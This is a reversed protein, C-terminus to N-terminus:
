RLLTTIDDDEDDDDSDDEMAQGCLDLLRDVLSREEPVLELYKESHGHVKYRLKVILSPKPPESHLNKSILRKPSANRSGLKLSTPDADAAELLKDTPKRVRKSSRLTRDEDAALDQVPTTTRSQSAVQATPKEKNEVDPVLDALSDRRKSPTGQSKSVLSEFSTVSSPIAVTSTSTLTPSNSLVKPPHPTYDVQPAVMITDSSSSSQSLVPGLSTDPEDFTEHKNLNPRSEKPVETVMETTVSKRRSVPSRTRRKKTTQQKHEDNQQLTENLTRVYKRKDARTTAPVVEKKEMVSPSKTDRGIPPASKHRSQSVAKRIIRGKNLTVETHSVKHDDAMAASAMEVNGLLKLIGDYILDSESLSEISEIIPELNDHELAHLLRDANQQAEHNTDQMGLTALVKCIVQSMSGDGHVQGNEDMLHDKYFSESFLPNIAPDMKLKELLQPKLHRNSKSPSHPSGQQLGSNKEGRLRRADDVKWALWLALEKADGYEPYDHMTSAIKEHITKRKSTNKTTSTEDSKQAKRPEDQSEDVSRRKLGNSMNEQHQSGNQSVVPTKETAQLDWPGSKSM